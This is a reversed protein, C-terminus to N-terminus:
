RNNGKEVSKSISDLRNEVAQLRKSMSDEMRNMRELLRREMINMNDMIKMLMHKTDHDGFLNDQQKEEETSKCTETASVVELIRATTNTTNSEPLGVSIPPPASPMRLEFVQPPESKTDSVVELIANRTNVQQGEDPMRLQFSDVASMSGGWNHKNEKISGNDEDLVSQKIMEQLMSRKSAKRDHQELKEGVGRHKLKGKFDGIQGLAVILASSVRQWPGASLFTMDSNPAAVVAIPGSESFALGKCRLKTDLQTQEVLKLDLQNTNNLHTYEFVSLSYTCNGGLIIYGIQNRIKSAAAVDAQSSLKKNLEHSATQFKYGNQEQPSYWALTLTSSPMKAEQTKLRLDFVQLCLCNEICLFILCPSMEHMQPTLKSTIHRKHSFNQITLLKWSELVM